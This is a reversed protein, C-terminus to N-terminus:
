ARVVVDHDRHEDTARRSDVLENWAGLFRCSEADVVWPREYNILAETRCEVLADRFESITAFRDAPDRQLARQCVAALEPTVGNRGIPLSAPEDHLVNHLTQEKTAGRHPTDLMVCEYLLVGLGYVDVASTLQSCCAAQEPAMYLPSGQCGRSELIPNTEVTYADVFALGWDILTASGHSDVIINEPKLDCHVVNLQHAHELASAVQVLVGLLRELDYTMVTSPDGRRLSQFVEHLTSGVKLGMTYFPRGDPDRGLDYVEPVAAHRMAACLRAERVLLQQELPSEVLERRLVKLAVDRALISDLCRFVEAKGGEALPRFQRYRMHGAHVHQPLKAALVTADFEATLPTRYPM